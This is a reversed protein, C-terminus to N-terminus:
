RPLGVRLMTPSTRYMASARNRIRNIARATIPYTIISDEYRGVPAIAAM